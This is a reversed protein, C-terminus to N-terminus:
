SGIGGERRNRNVDERREGEGGDGNVKELGEGKGKIKGGRGSAKNREMKGERGRKISWAVACLCIARLAM